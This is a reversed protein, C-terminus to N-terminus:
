VCLGGPLSLGLFPSSGVQERLTTMSPETDLMLSFRGNLNAAPTPVPTTSYRAKDEESHSRPLLGWMMYLHLSSLLIGGFQVMLDVKGIVGTLYTSGM